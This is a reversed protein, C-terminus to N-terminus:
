PIMGHPSCDSGFHDRSTKSGFHALTRKDASEHMIESLSNHIILGRVYKSLYHHINIILFIIRNSSFFLHVTKVMCFYPRTYDLFPSKVKEQDVYQLLMM